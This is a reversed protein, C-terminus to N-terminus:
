FKLIFNRFYFIKENKFGINEVVLMGIVGLGM